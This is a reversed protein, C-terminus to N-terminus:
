LLMTFFLFRCFMLTVNGAAHIDTIVFHSWYIAAYSFFGAALYLASHDDPDFSENFHTRAVPAAKTINIRRKTM